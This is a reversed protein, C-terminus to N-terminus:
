SRITYTKGAAAPFEFVNGALKEIKVQDTGSCVEKLDSTYRIRCTQDFSSTVQAESVAGNEWALDVVYGGRAKLGTVKGAPWAKPLAPLLEIEDNQSQVLMEALGAAGGFNGDIQFVLDDRDSLAPHADFLNPYTLHKLLSDLYYYAQEGQGLRAWLNILWASSWGTHGGGHAKRRELSKQCAEALDPQAARNIQTGPYLGWLHSVHRHGPEYEEFDQSWEQLQGFRGIRFPKIRAQAAELEVRFEPDTDLARCAEICSNFLEKIMVLDATTGVSVSCPKGEPTIFRNEPSTSPNTVLNGHEDKVLWDLCFLAADKMLPYARSSLFDRDLSFAYHEWLNQCLWVGGMPWFAWMASGGAPASQRWLDANHHAVWGRSNYNVQATKRGNVQLEEMMDFLPLHCESLNCIETPWYNMQANINITYNSSWPPRVRDNWIGQLNTAQTGPRSSAITLYRAYQFYLVFLQADEEGSQLRALRKNTPLSVADSTGLDLSVRRFLQRHDSAHRSFLEEYSSGGAADLWKECDLAPDKGDTAPNKDFGAFGTAGTLHIRVNDANEIVLENSSTVLQQGGEVFVELQIEFEMSEGEAFTVSQSSNVYNPEVHSPAKGRYTLRQGSKAEVSGPLPSDLSINVSIQGPKDCGLNVVLVQDVASIFAERTFVGAPTEFKTAALGSDLNLERRYNTYQDVGKFHLNLNGLPQYSENWTGLMHAEVLKEAESFKGATVLKRVQELHQSAEPNNKDRPIGSWLTDENLQIQEADAGGYVIGGLRGNGLPLAETWVKAPEEYWLVLPNAQGPESVAEVGVKDPM